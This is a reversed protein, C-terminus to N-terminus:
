RRKVNGREDVEIYISKDSQVFYWVLYLVWGVILLAWIIFWFWSFRKPKVLQATTDTQSVVRYGQRIYNNIEKQLIARRQDLTKTGSLAM